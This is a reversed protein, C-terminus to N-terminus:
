IHAAAITNGKKDTAWMRRLLSNKNKKRKNTNM